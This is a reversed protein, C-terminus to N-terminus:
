EQGEKDCRGTSCGERGKIMSQFLVNVYTKAQKNKTRRSEFTLEISILVEGTENWATDKTGYISIATDWGKGKIQPKM